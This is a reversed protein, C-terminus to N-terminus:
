RGGKEKGGSAEYEKQIQPDDPNLEHAKAFDGKAREKNGLLLYVRGRALWASADKTGHTARAPRSSCCAGIRM